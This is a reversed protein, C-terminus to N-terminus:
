RNEQNSIGDDDCEPVSTKEEVQAAASTISTDSSDRRAEAQTNSAQGPELPKADTEVTEPPAQAWAADVECSPAIEKSRHAEEQCIEKPEKSEIEEGEDEAQTITQESQQQPQREQQQDRGEENSENTDEDPKPDQKQALQEERAEENADDTPGSPPEAERPADGPDEDNQAVAPKSQSQLLDDADNEAVKLGLSSDTKEEETTAEDQNAQQEQDASLNNEAHQAPAANAAVPVETGGVPSTPKTPTESRLAIREGEDTDTEVWTEQPEHEQSSSQRQQQRQQEREECIKECELFSEIDLTRLFEIIDTGIQKVSSNWSSAAVRLAMLLAPLVQRRMALDEFIMAYLSNNNLLGMAYEAVQFHHGSICDCLQRVMIGQVQAFHAPEMYNVIEGIEGLFLIQKAASRKPWFKLLAQVVPVVLNADKAIYQMLVFSLQEQYVESGKISHLPLLCKVLMTKHEEKIPTAFGSAISGFVELMEAIGPHQRSIFAYELFANAMGLRMIGRHCVLRSYMCHAITKVYERERANSSRFLQLFDHCLRGRICRKKVDLPCVDSGLVKLFLEYVLSLHVWNSECAPGAPPAVSKPKNAGTSFRAMSHNSGSIDLERGDEGFVHLPRLVNLSAMEILDLFAIEDIRQGSSACRGIFDHLEQLTATKLNEVELPDYEGSSLVKDMSLTCGFVKLRLLLLFSEPNSPDMLSNLSCLRLSDILVSTKTGEAKWVSGVKACDFQSMAYEEIRQDRLTWLPGPPFSARKIAATWEVSSDKKEFALEIHNIRHEDGGNTSRLMM